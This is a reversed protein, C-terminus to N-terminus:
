KVGTKTFRNVVGGLATASKAGTVKRPLISMGTRTADKPADKSATKMKVDLANVDTVGQAMLQKAADAQGQPLYRKYVFLPNTLTGRMDYLLPQGQCDVMQSVKNKNNCSSPWILPVFWATGACDQWPGIAAGANDTIGKYHDSMYASLVADVPVSGHIDEGRAKIGVQTLNAAAFAAAPPDLLFLDTYVGTPLQNQLSPGTISGIEILAPISVDNKREVSAWFTVTATNITTNANLAAAGWTWLVSGDNFLKAPVHFDEVSFADDVSFNWELWMWRVVGADNANCLAPWGGILSVGKHYYKHALSERANMNIFTHGFSRLIISSVWNMIEKSTCGGGAGCTITLRLLAHVKAIRYTDGNFEDPVPLMPLVVQGAAAWVLLGIPFVRNM